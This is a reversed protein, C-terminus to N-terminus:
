ILTEQYEEQDQCAELEEFIQKVRRSLKESLPAWCEQCVDFEQGDIEKQLCDATKGCLDCSLM